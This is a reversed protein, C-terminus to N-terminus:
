RNFRRKTITCFNRFLQWISKDSQEYAANDDIATAVAVGREETKCVLFDNQALLQWISKDSQEYAANDDIVTAVAVGREETKCVPFDDQAM